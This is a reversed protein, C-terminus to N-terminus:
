DTMVVGHSLSNLASSVYATRRALSSKVRRLASHIWIALSTLFACVVVAGILIEWLVNPDISGLYRAPDFGACLARSPAGSAAIAVLCASARAPISNKGGAQRNKGAM